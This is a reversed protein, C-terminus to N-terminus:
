RQFRWRDVLKHSQEWGLRYIADVITYGMRDLLLLSNAGLAVYAQEGKGLMDFASDIDRHDLVLRILGDLYNTQKAEEPM